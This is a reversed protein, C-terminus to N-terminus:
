ERGRRYWHRALKAIDGFVHVAAVIPPLLMPRTASVQNGDAACSRIETTTGYVLFVLVVVLKLLLM